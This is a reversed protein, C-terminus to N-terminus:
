DDALGLLRALGVAREALTVPPGFQGHHHMLLITTDDGIPKGDWRTTLEAQLTPVFAAPDNTDITRVLELLGQEGLLRSSGPSEPTETAADTFALVLDGKHMPLAFQDYATPAIVGLPLNSIGKPRQDPTIADESEADLFTWTNSVRRYLLPRPHGANSLVLHASPVDYSAMIATAFNGGSEDSFAENVARTLKTQDVRNINKRMLKKLTDATDAVSEGHGSVDALLIRSIRGANCLSIYTVDGGRSRAHQEQTEGDPHFPDSHIFIDLGPVTLATEIPQNGGTIEMCTLRTPDNLTEATPM